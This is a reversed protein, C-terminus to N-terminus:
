AKKTYIYDGSRQIDMTGRVIENTAIDINLNAIYGDFVFNSRTTLLEFDGESDPVPPLTGDSLAIMWPLTIGSQYWQVLLEHSTQAPDFNFPVNIADANKLGQEFSKTTADLCTKEIQDATGGLGTVGTPCNVKVLAFGVPNTTFLETGQTRIAM